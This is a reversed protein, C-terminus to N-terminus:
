HSPPSQLHHVFELLERSNLDSIAWYTMGSQTWCVLHYGQHALPRTEVAAVSPWLFVNIVHKRRKYVLGAVARGNVYDLRGGVLPFGQETLDAVSPAFDLKGTFWPKVVQRDSSPIDVLHSVMLSRVHSATVEQILRDDATETPLFPVVRWTLVSVLVLSAAVAVWRWQSLGKLSKRATAPKFSSRVRNRLAPSATRYLSGTRLATQLARHSDFLTSCAPCTRFHQEVERNRIPDLEGDMYGDILTRVEQCNM